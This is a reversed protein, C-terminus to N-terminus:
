ATAARARCGNAAARKAMTRVPEHAPPHLNHARDRPRAPPVAADAYWAGTCPPVRWPPWGAPPPRRRALTALRLPAQRLRLPPPPMTTRLVMQLVMQLVMHLLPLLKLLM